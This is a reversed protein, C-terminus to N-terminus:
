IVMREFFPEKVYLCMDNQYFFFSPFSLDTQSHIIITLMLYRPFHIKFSRYKYFRRQRFLNAEVDGEDPGHDGVLDDLHIRGHPLPVEPNQFGATIKVRFQEVASALKKLISVGNKESNESKYHNEYNIM